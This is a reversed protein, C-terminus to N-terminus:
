VFLEIALHCITTLFTLPETHRQIEMLRDSKKWRDKETQRDAERDTDSTYLCVAFFILSFIIFHHFSSFFCSSRGSQYYHHHHHHHHHNVTLGHGWCHTVKSRNARIYGYHNIPRLVGRKNSVMSRDLGCLPCYM